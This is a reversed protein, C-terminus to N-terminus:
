KNLVHNIYYKTPNDKRIIKAPNGIVISNDPVNFNVFTNPAIMVNRGVSINGVVVSGTGVWVYDSITPRGENGHKYDRGITVSHGINCNRGMKIPGIVIHGPHSSLYLGEGIQAGSCIEFGFKIRFRRKLIKNFLNLLFNKKHKESKRYIFSFRFGPILWGNLFGKIGTYGGYRYLDAKTHNDFM